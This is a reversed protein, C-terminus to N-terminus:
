MRIFIIIEVTCLEDYVAHFGVACMETQSLQFRFALQLGDDRLINVTQMLCGSALIYQLQVSANMAAVAHLAASYVIRIFHIEPLANGAAAASADDARINHQIFFSQILIHQSLGHM